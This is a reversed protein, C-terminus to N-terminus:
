LGLKRAEEELEAKRKELSNLEDLEKQIKVKKEELAKAKADLELEEKRKFLEEKLKELDFLISLPFEDSIYYDKEGRFIEEYSLSFLYEDGDKSISIKEYGNYHKYFWALSREAFSNCNNYDDYIKSFLDWLENESLFSQLESLKERIVKNEYSSLENQAKNYVEYAKSSTEQLSSYKNLFENLTTM